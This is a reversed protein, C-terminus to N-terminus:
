VLFPDAGGEQSGHTSISIFPFGKALKGGTETADVGVDPMNSM